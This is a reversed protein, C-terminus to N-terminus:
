PDDSYNQTDREWKTRDMVGDVTLGVSEMYIDIARTEGGANRDEEGDREQYRHM